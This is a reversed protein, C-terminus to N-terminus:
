ISCANELLEIICKQKKLINANFFNFCPLELLLASKIM